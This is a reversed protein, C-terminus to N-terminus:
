KTNKFNSMNAIHLKANCPTKHIKEVRASIFIGIGEMFSTIMFPAVNFFVSAIVTLQGFGPVIAPDMLVIIVVM